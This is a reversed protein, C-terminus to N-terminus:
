HRKMAKILQPAPPDVIAETMLMPSATPPNLRVESRVLLLFAASLGFLLLVTLVLATVVSMRRELRLRVRDDLELKDM